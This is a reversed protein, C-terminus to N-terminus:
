NKKLPTSTTETGSAEPETSTTEQKKKPRGVKSRSRELHHQCYSEGNVRDKGCVMTDLGDVDGVIWRCHKPGMDLFSVSHQGVGDPTFIIQKERETLSDEVVVNKRAIIPNRRKAHFTPLKVNEICVPAQAKTKPKEIKPEVDKVIHAVANRAEVVRASFEEHSIPLGGSQKSFHFEQNRRSRGLLSSRSAGVVEAAERASFGNMSLFTAVDISYKDWHFAM